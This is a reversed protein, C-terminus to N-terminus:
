HFLFGNLDEASYAESTCTKPTLFTNCVSYINSGAKEPKTDKKPVQYQDCM